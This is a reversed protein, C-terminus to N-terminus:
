PSHLWSVATRSNTVFAGHFGVKRADIVCKADVCLSARRRCAGAPAARPCTSSRVAQRDGVIRWSTACRVQLACWMRVPLTGAWSPCTSLAPVDSFTLAAYIVGSVMLPAHRVTRRSNAEARWASAAQIGRHVGDFVSTHWTM